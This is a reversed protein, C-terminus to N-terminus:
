CSSASPVRFALAGKGSKAFLLDCSRAACLDSVGDGAFLLAPRESEPVGQLKEAYKKIQAAKDFGFDSEDYLRVKWKRRRHVDTDDDATEVGNSILEIESAEGPGLLKALLARILPQLGGSLIIVPINSAKAWHYFTVFHQDLEIFKNQFEICEELSHNISHMQDV